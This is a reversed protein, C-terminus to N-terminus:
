FHDLDRISRLGSQSGYHTRLIDRILPGSNSVIFFEGFTIMAVEGTAPQSASASVNKASMRATPTVRTLAASHCGM